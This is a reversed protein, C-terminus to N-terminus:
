CSQVKSKLRERRTREAECMTEVAGGGDRELEERFRGEMGSKFRAQEERMEKLRRGLEVPLTHLMEYNRRAREYRILRAVLGDGWRSFWGGPYQPTGYHRRNLYMFLADAQYRRSLEDRNRESEALHAAASMVKGSLEEEKAFLARWEALASLRRRTAERRTASERELSALREASEKQEALARRLQDEAQVLNAQLASAAKRYEGYIAIAKREAESMRADAPATLLAKLRRQALQLFQQDQRRTLAEYDRRAQEVGEAAATEETGVRKLAAVIRAMIEAARM